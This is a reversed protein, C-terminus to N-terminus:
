GSHQKVNNLSNNASPEMAPDDSIESTNSRIDGEM